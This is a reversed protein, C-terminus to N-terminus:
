GAGIPNAAKSYEYYEGDRTWRDLGAPTTQRTAPWPIRRTYLTRRRM